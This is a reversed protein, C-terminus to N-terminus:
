WIGISSLARRCNIPRRHSAFSTNKNPLRCLFYGKGYDNIESASRQRFKATLQLGIESSQSPKPIGNFGERKSPEFFRPTPIHERAIHFQKQPGRQQKAATLERTGLKCADIATTITQAATAGGVTLTEVTRCHGRSMACQRKARENPNAVAFAYDHPDVIAAGKHPAPM